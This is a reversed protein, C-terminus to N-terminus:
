HYGNTKRKNERASSYWLIPPLHLLDAPSTAYGFFFFFFDEPELSRSVAVACRRDASGIQASCVKNSAFKHPRSEGEARKTRTIGRYIGSAYSSNGGSEM